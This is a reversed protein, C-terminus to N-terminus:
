RACAVACRSKQWCLTLPPPWSARLPADRLLGWLLLLEIRAARTVEDVPPLAADRADFFVFEDAEVASAM